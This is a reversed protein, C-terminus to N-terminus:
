KGVDSPHVFEADRYIEGGCIVGIRQWRADVAVAAEITTHGARMAPADVAARLPADDQLDASAILQGKLGDLLTVTKM